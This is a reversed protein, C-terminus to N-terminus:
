AAASWDDAATARWRDLVADPSRDVVVIDRDAFEGAAAWLGAGLRSVRVEQPKGRVNVETRQM